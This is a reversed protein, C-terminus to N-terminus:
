EGTLLGGILAFLLTSALLALQYATQEIATRSDGPEIGIMIQEPTLETLNNPARAPFVLYLSPLPLPLHYVIGTGQKSM